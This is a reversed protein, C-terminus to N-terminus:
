ARSKAVLGTLDSHEHYWKLFAPIGQEITTRPEFGLKERALSIDAYSEPVDGPQLPLMEKKAEIGLEKEIIGIMKMLPESRCNGLNLVEYSNLGERFLSACVGAVIDDIFTFDRKMNGHNFVKIPNGKKIAETFLWMAMDPRGWPGYVTFFRLGVTQLGFLHTYCHAMLENAKKSAAYLSVPSDVRDSESFPVKTNGGYVSSSSAYVLRGVKFHRAMELINLFGAINSQEYLHPHTLSYRVGAQAALHCIRSIPEKRFVGELKDKECIDFRHESFSPYKRLIASRAEKLETLYYANFNDVGVVRCGQRLLERCVNFGIFGGSGTVLLVENEM